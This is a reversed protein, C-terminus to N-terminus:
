NDLQASLLVLPHTVAVASGDRRLANDFFLRCGVNSTVLGDPQLAAAQGLKEARLADAIPAHRLFYDGAAGCCRPELPLPVLEIGPIRRLMREVAPGAHAVNAQTCPTHLALRRQLPHFALTAVDEDADLFEHIERVRLAARAGAGALDRLAGFCGSASVLVTEVGAEVFARRTRAALARAGARDGRHLALAGCCVSARPLVPEYGLARLLRAAAAHVDRDALAAICGPFIGVRGKRSAPVESRPAAPMAPLRPLEDLARGATTGRLLRRLARSRLVQQLLPLNAVRLAARLVFPSALLSRRTDGGQARLQARTAVLLEDYRVQSPCVQQCSLCTLCQDLHMRLAPSVNLEGDALARAFAIRGRPSEAESRGVRYTPCAPLCLGCKVCQDALAVIDSSNEQM